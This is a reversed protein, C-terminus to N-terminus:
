TCPSSHLPSAKIGIYHSEETRTNYHSVHWPMGKHLARVLDAFHEPCELRLPGHVHSNKRSNEQIHLVHFVMNINWPSKPLWVLVWSPNGRSCGSAQKCDVRKVCSREAAYPELIWQCTFPEHIFKISMGEGRSQFILIVNWIISDNLQLNRAWVISFPPFEQLSLSQPCCCREQTQQAFM